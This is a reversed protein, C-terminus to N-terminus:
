QAVEWLANIVQQLEESGGIKDPHALKSLERYRRKRAAPDDVKAGMVRRALDVATEGGAVSLLTSRATKASMTANRAKLEAAQLERAAAAANRTVVWGAAGFVKRATEVQESPGCYALSQSYANNSTERGLSDLFNIRCPPYMMLSSAKALRQWWESSVSANTLVWLEELQDGEWEDCARDVFPAILGRSYPPNLWVVGGWANAPDLGDDEATYCISAKVTEQASANSAPDVELAGSVQRALDLVWEPTAYSDRDIEIVVPEPEVPAAKQAREEVVEKVVRAPPQPSDAREQAAEWAEAREGEPAKGLERAQRESRPPAPAQSGHNELAEIEAVVEAGRIYQDARRRSIGWRERCYDEFTGYTERYLRSDRVSALAEGVRVFTKLGRAIVAEANMLADREPATMEAVVGPTTLLDVTM